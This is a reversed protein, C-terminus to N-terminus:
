PSVGGQTPNEENSELVFRLVDRLFDDNQLSDFRHSRLDPEVAKEWRRQHNAGLSRCWEGLPRGEILLRPGGGEDTPTTLTEEFQLEVSDDLAGLVGEFLEWLSAAGVEPRYCTNGDRAPVEWTVHLREMVIRGISTGRFRGLLNHLTIVQVGPEEALPVVAVIVDFSNDFGEDSRDKKSGHIPPFGSGRDAVEFLPFGSRLFLEFTTSFFLFPRKM